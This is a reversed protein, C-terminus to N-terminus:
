AECSDHWLLSYYVHYFGKQCSSKKLIKSKQMREGACTQMVASWGQQRVLERSAKLIDEKSTIVTNM